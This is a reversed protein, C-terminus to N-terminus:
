LAATMADARFRREWEENLMTSQRTLPPHRPAAAKEDSLGCHRAVSRVVTAPDAVLDEYTVRRPEIGYTAFFKEWWGNGAVINDIAGAIGSASYDESRLTTTPAQWAAFSRTQQAVLLSIAQRVLNRRTLFVFRWAHIQRPFEGALFLPIVCQFPGKVAFTGHRSYTRVLHACLQGYDSAGSADRESLVRPPNLYEHPVAGYAALLQSLMTSGTRSTCAIICKHPVEDFAVCTGQGRPLMATYREVISQGRAGFLWGADQMHGDRSEVPWGRDCRIRRDVSVMRVVVMSQGRPYPYGVRRESDFGYRGALTRFFEFRYPFITHNPLIKEPDDFTLFFLSGPHMVRGIHALRQEINIATLRM